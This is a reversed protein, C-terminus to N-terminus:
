EAKERTAAPAAPAASGAPARSDAELANFGLLEAMQVARHASRTPCPRTARSRPRLGARRARAPADESLRHRGDRRRQRALRQGAPWRASGGCWWRRSCRISNSRPRASWRPRAISRPRAGPQRRHRAPHRDRRPANGAATEATPAPSCLPPAIAKSTAKPSSRRDQAAAAARNGAEIADLAEILTEGERRGRRSSARRGGSGAASRASSRARRAAVLWWGYRTVFRNMQERRLEEDVERLFTEGDNPKLAM